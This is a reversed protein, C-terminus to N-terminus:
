PTEEHAEFAVDKDRPALFVTDFAVCGQTRYGDKALGEIRTRDAGEHLLHTPPVGHPAETWRCGGYM